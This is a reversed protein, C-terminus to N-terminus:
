TGRILILNIELSIVDPYDVYPQFVLAMCMLAAFGSIPIRPNLKIRGAFNLVVLALALFVMMPVYDAEFVGLLMLVSTLSLYDIRTKSFVNKRFLLRGIGAIAIVSGILLANCINENQIGDIEGILSFEASIVPLVSFIQLDFVSLIVAFLVSAILTELKNRYTDLIIHVLGNCLRCLFVQSPAAGDTNGARLRAVELELERIRKGRKISRM